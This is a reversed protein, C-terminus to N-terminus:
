AVLLKVIAHAAVYVGRIFLGLGIAVFFLGLWNLCRAYRLTRISRNNEKVYPHEWVPDKAFFYAAYGNNCLYACAGAVMGCIIGATFWNLCQTVAKLNGLTIGKRSALTGIFALIAVAAGSNVLVVVKIAEQADRTSAEILRKGLDNALDHAREAARQNRDYEGQDSM